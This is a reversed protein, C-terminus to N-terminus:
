ENTDGLKLNLWEDEIELKYSDVKKQFKEWRKKTKKSPKWTRQYELGEDYCKWSCFPGDSMGFPASHLDIMGYHLRNNCKPNRCVAKMGQFMKIFWKYNCKPNDKDIWESLKVAWISM